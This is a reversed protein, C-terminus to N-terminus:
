GRKGFVVDSYAPYPFRLREQIEVPARDESEYYGIEEKKEGKVDEQVGEEKVDKSDSSFRAAKKADEEAYRREEEAAREAEAEQAAIEASLAAIEADIEAQTQPPM